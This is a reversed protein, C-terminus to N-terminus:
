EIIEADDFGIELTHGFKPFASKFKVRLENSIFPQLYKASLYEPLIASNSNLEKKKQWFAGSGKIGFANALGRESFVRTGNELVSCPL